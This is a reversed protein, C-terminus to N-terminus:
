WPMLTLYGAYLVTWFGALVILRGRLSLHAALTRSVIDAILIAVIFRSARALITVLLFPTLPIGAAPAAAAFIKYPTGTISGVFLQWLGNKNLADRGSDMMAQSIAPLSEIAAMAPVPDAAAWHFMLAGGAVAGAIAWCAARFAAVRGRWVAAATLCIDPVLFFLTAEAFGWLAAIIGLGM